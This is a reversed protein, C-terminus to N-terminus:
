MNEQEKQAQLKPKIVKYYYEKKKDLYKQRREPDLKLAELYAKNNAKIKDRNREQYEKMSKKHSLYYKEAPSLENTNQKPDSM